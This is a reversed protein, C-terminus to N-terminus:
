RGRPYKTALGIEDLLNVDQEGMNASRPYIIGEVALQQLFHRNVCWQTQSAGSASTLRRRGGAEERMIGEPLSMIAKKIVNEAQDSHRLMPKITNIPIENEGIEAPMASALGSDVTMETIVRIALGDVDRSVSQGHTAFLGEADQMVQEQLFQKNVCFFSPTSGIRGEPPMIRMGGAKEREEAPLAAMAKKIAAEAQQPNKLIFKVLGWPVEEKDNIVKM